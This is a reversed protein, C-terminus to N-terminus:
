VIVEPWIVKALGKANAAPVDALPQGAAHYGMACLVAADALDHSGDFGDTWVHGYRKAVHELVLGKSGNGKGTAYLARAAPSVVAYPQDLRDLRTIVKWWLGARDWAGPTSSGYSPGEIVVFEAPDTYDRVDAMVREIRLARDEWTADIRGDSAILHHWGQGAIGTSTLSLDVGVVRLRLGNHDTM